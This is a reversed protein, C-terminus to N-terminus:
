RRLDGFMIGRVRQDPPHDGSDDIERRALDALEHGFHQHQAKRVGLSGDHQERGVAVHREAPPQESNVGCRGDCCSPPAVTFWIRRSRGHTLRPHPKSAPRSLGLAPIAWEDFVLAATTGFVSGSGATVGPLTEAVLGYAGGLAAGFAYHVLNGALEIKADAVQEGTTALAM